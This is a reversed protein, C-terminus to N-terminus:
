RARAKREYGDRTIRFLTATLFKNNKDKPPNLFTCKKSIAM